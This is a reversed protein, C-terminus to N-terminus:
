GGNLAAMKRPVMWIPAPSSAADLGRCGCFAVGTPHLIGDADGSKSYWRATTSTKAGSTSNLVVDSLAHRSGRRGQRCFSTPIRKGRAQGNLDAAAVRITRSRLLKRLLKKM